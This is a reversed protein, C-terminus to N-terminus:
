KQAAQERAKTRRLRGRFTGKGKSDPRTIGMAVVANSEMRHLRRWTDGTAVSKASRIDELVRRIRTLVKRIPVGPRRRKKAM